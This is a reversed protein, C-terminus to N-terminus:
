LMDPLCGGDCFHLDFVKEKEKNDKHEMYMVYACNFGFGFGTAIYGQKEYRKIRRRTLPHPVVGHEIFYQQWTINREILIDMCDPFPTTM